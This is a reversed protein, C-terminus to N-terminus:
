RKAKIIPQDHRPSFEQWGALNRKGSVTEASHTNERGNDIHPYQVVLDNPQSLPAIASRQYENKQVLDLSTMNWNRPIENLNRYALRDLLGM